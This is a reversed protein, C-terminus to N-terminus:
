AKRPAERPISDLYQEFYRTVNEESCTNRAFFRARDAIETGLRPNEWLRRMQQAFSSANGLEALLATEDHRVYDAVGQTDSVILPIGMYMGRVLTGHGCPVTTGRLSIVVGRSYRMINYAEHRPINTRVHVNPPIDLGEVNHPRCVVE